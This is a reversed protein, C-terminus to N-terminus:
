VEIVKPLVGAGGVMSDLPIVLKFDSFSKGISEYYAAMSTEMEKLNASAIKDLTDYGGGCLHRITKGRVYALRSIDARHALRLIFEEAMGTQKSFTARGSKIRFSELVGLNSQIGQKKLIEPCGSPIEEFTDLLEKVPCEFPLVWRLLYDLVQILAKFGFGTEQLFVECEARTKVKRILDLYDKIGLDGLARINSSIQDIFSVDTRNQLYGERIKRSYTGAEAMSHNYYEQVFGYNLAKLLKSILDDYQWLTKLKVYQWDIEM